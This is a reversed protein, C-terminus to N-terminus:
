MCLMLFLYEGNLEYDGLEGGFLDAATTDITSPLPYEQDDAGNGTSTINNTSQVVEAGLFEEAAATNTVLMVMGQQPAVETAVAM